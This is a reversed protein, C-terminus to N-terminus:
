PCLSVTPLTLGSSNSAASSTSIAREAAALARNDDRYYVFVQDGNERFLSILQTTYNALEYKNKEMSESVDLTIFIRRSQGCASACLFIMLLCINYSHKLKDMNSQKRFCHPFLPNNRATSITSSNKGITSM